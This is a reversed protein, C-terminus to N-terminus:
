RGDLGNPDLRVGPGVAVHQTGDETEVVFAEIEGAASVVVDRLAGLDQGAKGVHTGKLASLTSTRRRYFDFGAVDLLAFRSTLRIEDGDLEAAALPLFRHVDDRCLVDIGLARGQSPDLILDVARGVDAGEHRVPFRLLREARVGQVSALRGCADRRSVESLGSARM